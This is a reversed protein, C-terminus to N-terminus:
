RNELFHKIRSKLWEVGNNLIGDSPDKSRSEETFLEGDLNWDNLLEKSCKIGTIDYDYFVMIRKFRSKLHDILEQTILGISSESTFAISSYGISYLSMIDKKSSTIFLVDGSNPLQRYGYISNGDNSFPFKKGKERLPCYLKIRWDKNVNFEPMLYCLDDKPIHYCSENMWYTELPKIWFKELIQRNINFQLWYDLDRQEFERSRYLCDVIEEKINLINPNIRINGLNHDNNIVNLAEYYSINYKSMVYKWIDFRDGTSFDHYMIRSGRNSVICSPNNDKRLESRFPKNLKKLSPIYYSFLQEESIKALISDKSVDNKVKRPSLVNM